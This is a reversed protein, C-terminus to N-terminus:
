HRRAHPFRRSTRVFSRGINRRCRAARRRSPKRLKQRLLKKRRKARLAKELNVPGPAGLGCTCALSEASVQVEFVDGGPLATVTMCAGNIAISDGLVAGELYGAPAQVRLAVGHATSEGLPRVELISGTGTIIGTFM